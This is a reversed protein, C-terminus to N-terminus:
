IREVITAVGRSVRTILRGRLFTLSEVTEDNEHLVFDVCQDREYFITQAFWIQNVKALEPFDLRRTDVEGLVTREDLLMQDREFLLVRQDAETNVLKPVKERLAKEVLFGLTGPQYIRGLMLAGAYSPQEAFVKACIAISATESIACQHDSRGLPLSRVNRRLWEHVVAPAGKLTPESRIAKADIFIQTVRAPVHLSAEQHMPLFNQKFWALDARDEVYPQILTHEIALRRGDSKREVFGDIAGDFQEDPIQLEDAGWTGNEYASVFLRILATDRKNKAPM